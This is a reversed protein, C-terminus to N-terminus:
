ANRCGGILEAMLDLLEGLDVPKILYGKAGQKMGEIGDKTGAQGTLLIVPLEPKIERIRKLIEIGDMGPLMVDLLVMDFHESAIRALASAGDLAVSANFDRLNLREALTSAFEAEDDVLLIALAKTSEKM